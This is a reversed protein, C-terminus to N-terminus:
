PSAKGTGANKGTGSPTAAGGHGQQTQPFGHAPAGPYVQQFNSQPQFNPQPAGPYVAAQVPGQFQGAPAGPTGAFRGHGGPVGLEISIPAVVRRGDPLIEYSIPQPGQGLGVELSVPQVVRQGNPLIEISPPQQVVTAGQGAAFGQLFANASQGHAPVQGPHVPPLQPIPGPALALQPHTHPPGHAQGRPPGHPPGHGPKTQQPRAAATTILGAVVVVALVVMAKHSAM